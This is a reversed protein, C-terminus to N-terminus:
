AVAELFAKTDCESALLTFDDYFSLSSHSATIAPPDYPKECRPVGFTELLHAFYARNQIDAFSFRAVRIGYCTLRSERLREARLVQGTTKGGALLINESKAAGDLEGIILSGDEAVWGFDGRFGHAPDLPDRIEVQLEPMAFGLERMVYRAISEGGSEARADALRAVEIAQRIGRRGRCATELYRVLQYAYGNCARLSADAIALADAPRMSALCDSVTRWFSTLRMGDLMVSEDNEIRRFLLGGYPARSCASIQLPELYSWTVPLGYALAAAPGCLTWGPHKSSIARMKCLIRSPVDLTSWYVERAFMGPLPEIIGADGRRELAQRDARNDPVLLSARREAGDLLIDLRVDTSQAM